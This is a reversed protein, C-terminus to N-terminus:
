LRCGLCTAWLLEAQTEEPNSVRVRERTM